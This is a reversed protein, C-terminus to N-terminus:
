RPGLNANGGWRTWEPEEPDCPRCGMLQLCHVYRLIVKEAWDICALFAERYYSSCLETAREPFISEAEWCLSIASSLRGGCPADSTITILDLRQRFCCLGLPDVKNVPDNGVYAYLNPGETLEPKRLPDRSLWRGVTPDYARFRTVSLGAETAFFMGAFGFDAEVDGTLRSRRGWPDYPITDM